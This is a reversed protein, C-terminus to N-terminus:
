LSEGRALRPIHGRYGMSKVALQRRLSPVFAHALLGALRGASALPSPNSYLRALGDSYAITGDHDPKRWASYRCLLDWSGPDFRGDNRSRDRLGDALVEALVAADRLGLNFGQAGVPHIAHSANGIVVARPRVDELARVLKLPYASRKGMKLFRGLRQGFRLNARRMFEAESLDMLAAVERTPVCWILGCRGNLHPMVAMPGSPTFLEFARGQHDQEPTVNCIVASQNYDHREAEIGLSKRVFSEAGDAGVVLRARFSREGDDDRVTLRCAEEQPELSVLSVPCVVDTNKLNPLIEAMAAGFARAEVVHGFRDLGLESPSMLVRGPRDLERVQIERIPTASSAIKSWLGLGRLIACSSASLALTRDDYSPQTAARYAVSEVVVTKMALPDLACALSAGVLGGGIIALDYFPQKEAGAM